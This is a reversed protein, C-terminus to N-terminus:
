IVRVESAFRLIWHLGELVKEMKRDMNTLIKDCNHQSIFVM